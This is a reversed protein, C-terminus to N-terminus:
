APLKTGLAQGLGPYVMDEPVLGRARALAEAVFQFPVVSWLVDWGPGGVDPWAVPDGDLCPGGALDCISAHTGRAALVAAAHRATALDTGGRTLFIACSRTGHAHFRGHMAEETDLGVAPVGSMEVIKLAAEIATGELGLRGAVTIFDPVGQRAVWAEVRARVGPLMGDAQGALAGLDRATGSLRDALLLLALVSATYGKTKPGIREEGIPLVVVAAGSRAIDSDAEATIAITPLGLAVARRAAAVTSGSRGGQSLVVVLTAWGPGPPLALFTEPARVEVAAGTQRTLAESAALLANRSSGAGVLVLREPRSATQPLEALRRPIARTLADWTEPQEAVHELVGM